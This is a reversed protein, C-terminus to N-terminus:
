KQVQQAQVVTIAIVKVVDDTCCGRSLDNVPLALGQVIPGLAEAKAMRQVLKYGINGAGLDPFILVNAKGEVPSGPAKSAAVEPVIAADLQLEGDLCLDPAMEKALRTAEIVKETDENKASGKTSFSLMAIRPEMECLTRATDASTVAIAALEEASPKMVMGSDAFIFTGNHGLTTDPVTMVFFASVTSVGKRAKIIQLAPRLLDSSSHAAGGVMGDAYGLKVMMVGFYLPSKLTEYAQEMTMGKKKRLECLAQAFEETYESKEMDLIKVGSLDVDGSLKKAEEEKALLVIDAIGM